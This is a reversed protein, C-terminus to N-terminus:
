TSHASSTGTNNMTRPSEYKPVRDHPPGLSRGSSKVNRRKMASPNSPSAVIRSQSVWRDVSNGSTRRFRVM